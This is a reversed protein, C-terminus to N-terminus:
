ICYQSTGNPNVGVLKGGTEEVKYSLLQIFKRWSADSISKALYPHHLMNQIHLKEVAIASYNNALQRTVKHLFDLRQQCIKEHLKAVKLRSKKRNSSRPKKRSHKKQFFALKQGAKRLYCPHEITNGDSTAYFNALGLDIGISKQERPLKRAPEKEVSFCAHWKNTSTRKITLTKIKGDLKRHRVLAVEGVKSIFLKKELQFGSQPYTLSDFRLKGKFRPFGPKGGKKVRNYFNQFAYSIRQNINQLVQSHVKKLSPYAEKLRHLSNNLDFQTLNKDEKQYAYIKLELQKNYAFRALELMKNLSFEQKKSPYLRFKYSKHTAAM